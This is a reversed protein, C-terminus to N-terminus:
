PIQLTTGAPINFLDAINNANVIATPDLDGFYCAIGYVTMNKPTTYTTPHHNLSRSAPFTAGSQPIKLTLGPDYIQAQADTLGNLSLLEDPNVNFRRAICYPFEGQKLTYSSPKTNNVPVPTNTQTAVVPLTNTATAGGVPMPTATVTTDASAQPAADGAPTGTSVAIATLTQMGYEFADDMDAPLTGPFDSNGEITPTAQSQSDTSSSFPQECGVTIFAMVTLATLLILLSKKPM